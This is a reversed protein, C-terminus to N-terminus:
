KLLVVKQYSITYNAKMKLLYMGSPLRQGQRNRGDWILSNLGKVNDKQNIANVLQGHINYIDLNVPCQTKLSYSIQTTTCFPNPYIRLIKDTPIPNTDDINAVPKNLVNSFAAQSLLIDGNYQTKVAYLYNGVPLSSWDEDQYSLQSQSVSGLLVWEAENEEQQPLLRWIRFGTFRDNRSQKKSKLAQKEKDPKRVLTSQWSIQTILNGTQMSATVNSPPVVLETLNIQGMYGNTMTLSFNGSAVQYGQKFVTYNYTSYSLVNPISFSGSTNTTTSYTNTGNLVVTANALVILPNGGVITGYVSVLPAPVLSFNLNTYSGEAININNQTQTVYGSAVATVNYSGPNLETGYLGQANTHTVYDGITVTANAIPQMNQANRIYGTIGCPDPTYDMGIQITMFKVYGGDNTGTGTLSYSGWTNDSYFMLGMRGIQHGGAATLYKITNAPYVWMPRNGAFQPVDVSNIIIPESWSVGRDISVAIYIEPVNAYQSFFNNDYQNFQKAKWSNQWVCAM